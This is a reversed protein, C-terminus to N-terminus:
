YGKFGQASCYVTTTGTGATFTFATNAATVLPVNFAKNNGGGGGSNPLVLITAAADSLTVIIAATGADSRGCEVDTIYTKVNAGQAAIITTAGTGTTSASGRLMNERNAYPSTVVKGTLDGFLPTLSGTTAAAPESSQADVGNLIGSSPVAAALTGIGWNAQTAPNVTGINNTGAPIPGTVGNAIAKLIAVISGSGSSWAADAKLGETVNWGDAGAGAALAGSAYAGSLVGGSNVVVASQCNGSGDNTTSINQTAGAADKVTLPNPCVAWSTAPLLCALLAAFLYKRM